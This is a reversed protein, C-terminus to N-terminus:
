EWVAHRGHVRKDWCGLVIAVIVVVTVVGVIAVVAINPALPSGHVQLEHCRARTVSRQRSCPASM